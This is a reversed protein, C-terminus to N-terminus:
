SGVFFVVDLTNAPMTVNQLMTFAGEDTGTVIEGKTSGKATFVFTNAWPSGYINTQGNTMYNDGVKALVGNAGPKFFWIGEDAERYVGIFGKSSADARFNGMNFNYTPPNTAAPVGNAGLMFQHIASTNGMVYLNKGDPTMVLNSPQSGTNFNGNGMPVLLGSQAVTGAHMNQTGKFAMYCYQGDPSFVLDRPEDAVDIFPPNLPTLQGTQTIGYMYVRDLSPDLAYLVPKIPHMKLIVKSNAVAAAGQGIVFGQANFRVFEISDSNECGFYYTNSTQHRAMSTVNQGVHYNQVFTVKKDAGVTFMRLEGTAGVATMRANPPVESAPPVANGGGSGGCGVLVMSLAAIALGVTVKQFGNM